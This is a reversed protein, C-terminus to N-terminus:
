EMAEKVAQIGDDIADEIDKEGVLAASLEEGNATNAQLAGPYKSIPKGGSIMEELNGWLNPRHEIVEEDNLTDTAVPSGGNLIREKRAEFSNVWELFQWAATARELSLNSPVALSWAGVAPSSGPTDYQKIVADELEEQQELSQQIGEYFINYNIASFANGNGMHESVEPFGWSESDPPTGGEQFMEIFYETAQIAEERHQDYQVNGESDIFTGGLGQFLGLWQDNAKTGSQGMLAAGHVDTGTYESVWKTMEVYEEVTEAPGFEQGFESRYASRMEEDQLLDERYGAGLTWQWFPLTWTTGEFTAVTNWIEELYVSQDVMDSQSVLDNLPVLREGLAFDGVWYTDITMVDYASENAAVQTRASESTQEYGFFEFNVDVGHEDEFIHSIESLVVNDAVEEALVTVEDVELDADPDIDSALERPDEYGDDGGGLCGTLSVAGAAGATKLFSRRSGVTSLVSQGSDSTTSDSGSALM